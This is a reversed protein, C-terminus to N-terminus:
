TISPIEQTARSLVTMKVVSIAARSSFFCCQGKFPINEQGIRQSLLSLVVPLKNRTFDRPFVRVESSFTLRKLPTNWRLERFDIRAALKCNRVFEVQKRHVVCYAGGLLTCSEFSEHVLVSHCTARMFKETSM